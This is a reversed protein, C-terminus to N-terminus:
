QMSEAIQLLTSMATESPLTAAIWFEMRDTSWVFQQNSVTPDFSEGSYVGQVFQAAFPGVELLRISDGPYFRELDYPSAPDLLRQSILLQEMSGDKHVYRLVVARTERDFEASELALYSPVHEPLRVEFGVEEGLDMLECDIGICDKASPSPQPSCSALVLVSALLALRSSLSSSTSDVRQKTGM